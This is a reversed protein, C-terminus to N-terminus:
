CVAERIDLGVLLMLILLLFALPPPNGAVTLRTGLSLRRVAKGERLEEEDDSADLELAVEEVSVEDFVYLCRCSPVSM